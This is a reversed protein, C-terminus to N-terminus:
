PKDKMRELLARTIGAFSYVVPLRGDAMMEALTDWEETTLPPAIPVYGRQAVVNGDYTTIPALAALATAIEFHQALIDEIIPETRQPVAVIGALKRRTLRALTRGTTM